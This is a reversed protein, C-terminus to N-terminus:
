EKYKINQHIINFYSLQMLNDSLNITESFTIERKSIFHEDLQKKIFAFNEYYTSKNNLKYLLKLVFIDNKSPEMIDDSYRHMVDKVCNSHGLGFIHGIEHLILSYLKDSPYVKNDSTCVGISVRLQSYESYQLGYYKDTQRSWYIRIDSQYPSDVINFKIKNDLINAWVSFAKKVYNRCKTEDIILDPFMIPTIYVNYFSKDLLVLHGNPSYQSANVDININFSSRIYKIINNM